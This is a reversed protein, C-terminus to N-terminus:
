DARIIRAIIRNQARDPLANLLLLLPNRNIKYVYRPRKARIARVVLGAIRDPSVKRSEVRDVINRFKEANCKYLETTNCFRDLRATSVGLFGTDIAGPRIVTVPHGLLQLEMRLSYAYKEVAAKTVGYLGTFPLPDLPALESSIIIVRGGESLLPLFTKNVRYISFLNISFIRMFDQEDIEILSNLDYIGAMNIICDVADTQANIQSFARQVSDMDTLDTQIFVFSASSQESMDTQIGASQEPQSGTFSTGEPQRIDLGFVRYGEALLRRATASGMGGAVGTIIVSKKDM